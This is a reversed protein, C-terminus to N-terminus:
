KDSEEQIELKFEGNLIEDITTIGLFQFESIDITDKIEKPERSPIPKPGDPVGDYFDVVPLYGEQKLKLDFHLKDIPIDVTEFGAYTIYLRDRPDVLPFSFKGESDTIGFAVVKEAADRESVRVMKLPGDNCSVIGSITDGAIQSSVSVFVANLLLIASLLFLKKKM